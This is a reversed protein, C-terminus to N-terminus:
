SENPKNSPLYCTLLSKAKLQNISCNQIKTEVRSSVTRALAEGNISGFKNKKTKSKYKKYNM